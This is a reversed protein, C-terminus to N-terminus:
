PQVGRVAGARDVGSVPIFEKEATARDAGDSGRLRTAGRLENAIGQLFTLGDDMVVTVYYKRETGTAPNRWSRQEVKLYGLDTYERRAYNDADIIKKLRLYALFKRPGVNLQEAIQSLTPLRSSM